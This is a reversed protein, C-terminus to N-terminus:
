ILNGIRIHRKLIYSVRKWRGIRRGRVGVGVVPHNDVKVYDLVPLQQDMRRGIEKEMEM